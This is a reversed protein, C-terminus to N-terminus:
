KWPRGEAVVPGALPGRGAEDIGAVTAYGEGILAREMEALRELRAQENAERARKREIKDALARVGARKDARLAQLMAEDADATDLFSVIESISASTLTEHTIPTPM